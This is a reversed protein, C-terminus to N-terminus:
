IRVECNYYRYIIIGLMQADKKSRRRTVVTSNCLRRHLKRIIWVQPQGGGAMVLWENSPHLTVQDISHQMPIEVIRVCSDM